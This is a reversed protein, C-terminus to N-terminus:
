DKNNVCFQIEHVSSKVAVEKQNGFLKLKNTRDCNRLFPFTFFLRLALVHLAYLEHPCVM